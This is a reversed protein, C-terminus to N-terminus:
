FSIHFLKLLPWEPIYFFVSLSLVFSIGTSTTLNVRVHILIIISILLAIDFINKRSVNEDTHTFHKTSVNEDTHTFINQPFMKM